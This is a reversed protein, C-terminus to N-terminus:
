TGDPGPYEATTVACVFGSFNNLRRHHQVDLSTSKNGKFNNEASDLGAGHEPDSLQGGLWEIGETKWMLKM